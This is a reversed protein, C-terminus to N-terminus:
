EFIYYHKMIDLFNLVGKIEGHKETNLKSIKDLRLIKSDLDRIKKEYESKELPLKEYYKKKKKTEEEDMNNMISNEYHEYQKQEEQRSKVIDNRREHIIRPFDIQIFNIFHKVNILGIENENEKILLYIKLRNGNADRHGTSTFNVYPTLLEVMLEAYQMEYNCDYSNLNIEEM